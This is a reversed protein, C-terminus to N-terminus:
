FPIDDLNVPKDPEVDEIVVDLKEPPKEPQPEGVAAAAVTSGATIPADWPLPELEVTDDIDDPQPESAPIANPVLKLLDMKSVKALESEMLDTKNPSPKVDYYSPGPKETRTVTIDYTRPDGWEPDEAYSRIKGYVGGTTTFVKAAGDSRDIVGFHYTEQINWDSDAMLKAWQGTSLAMVTESALPAEGPSAPWVKMERYPRSAIRIKIQQDKQKLRLFQSAPERPPRDYDGM